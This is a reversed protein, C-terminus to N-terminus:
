RRKRGVAYALLIVGLSALIVGRPSSVFTIVVMAAQKLGDRVTLLSYEVAAQVLALAPM